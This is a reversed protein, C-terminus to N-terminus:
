RNRLYAADDAFDREAATWETAVMESVDPPVADRAWARASRISLAQRHLEAMDAPSLVRALRNRARDAQQVISWYILFFYLGVILLVVGVPLLLWKPPADSKDPALVGIVPLFLCVLGCQMARRLHGTRRPSELYGHRLFSRLEFRNHQLMPMKPLVERTPKMQAGCEACREGTDSFVFRRYVYGERCCSPCASGVSDHTMAM